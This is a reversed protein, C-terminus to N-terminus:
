PVQPELAPLGLLAPWVHGVETPAENAHTRFHPPLEAGDDVDRPARQQDYAHVSQSNTMGGPTLDVKLEIADLPQQTIGRAGIVLHQNRLDRLPGSAGGFVVVLASDM